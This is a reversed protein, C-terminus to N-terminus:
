GQKSVQTTGCGKGEPGGFLALVTIHKLPLHVYRIGTVVDDCFFSPDCSHLTEPDFKPPGFEASLATDIGVVLDM